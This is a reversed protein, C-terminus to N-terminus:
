SGGRVSVYGTVCSFKGFEEGTRIDRLRVTPFCTLDVRKCWAEGLRRVFDPRDPYPIQEFEHQALYIDLNAGQLFELRPEANPLVKALEVEVSVAMKAGIKTINTDRHSPAYFFTYFLWAIACIGGILIICCGVGDDSKDDGM